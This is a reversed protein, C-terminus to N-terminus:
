PTGPATVAADITVQGAHRFTLTLRVSGDDEFPAPDLLVVDDGFPSLTITAGAPIALAPVVTGRVAPGARRVLVVRRAVPSRVSILQDPAGSLNRITLYTGATRAAATAAPTFGRMPVAALSVQIRVSRITGAGGAAVWGSLLGILVGACAAPAAGARVAEHLWGRARARPSAATVTV